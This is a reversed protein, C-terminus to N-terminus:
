FTWAKGVVVGDETPAVYPRTQWDKYGVKEDPETVIYTVIGAMAFAGSIGLTIQAIKRSRLASKRIDEREATWTEGTHLGKASVMDSQSRSHLAFGAGVGGSVAVAGVISYLVLRENASRSGEETFTLQRESNDFYPSPPTPTSDSHALGGALSQAVLLTGVFVVRSVHMGAHHRQAHWRDLSTANAGLLLFARFQLPNKPGM